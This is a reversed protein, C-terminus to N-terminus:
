LTALRQERLQAMHQLHAHVVGYMEEMEDDFGGAFSYVRFGFELAKQLCNYARNFQIGIKRRQTPDGAQSQALGQYIALENLARGSFAKSLLVTKERCQQLLRWKFRIGVAQYRATAEAKTRLYAELDRAIGDMTQAIHDMVEYPDSGREAACAEMKTDMQTFNKYRVAVERIVDVKASPWGEIYKLVEGEDELAGM